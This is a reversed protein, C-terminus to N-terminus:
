ARCPCTTVCLLRALLLPTPTSLELSHLRCQTNHRWLTASFQLVPALVRNAWAPLGRSSGTSSLGTVFDLM